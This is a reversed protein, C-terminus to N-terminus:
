RDGVADRGRARLIIRRRWVAIAVTGPPPCPVAARRTVGHLAAVTRGILTRATASPPRPVAARRTVRDLAANTLGIAPMSCMVNCKAAQRRPRSKCSLIFRAVHLDRRSRVAFCDREPIAPARQAVSARSSVASRASGRAANGPAFRRRSAVQAANRRVAETGLKM